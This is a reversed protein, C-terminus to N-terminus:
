RIKPSIVSNETIETEAESNRGRFSPASVGSRRNGDRGFSRKARATIGTHAICGAGPARSVAKPPPPEATSSQRREQPEQQTAGPCSGGRQQPRRRGQAATACSGRHLVTARSLPRSAQAGPGTQLGRPAPTRQGPAEPNIRFSKLWWGRSAGSPQGLLTSPGAGVCVCSNGADACQSSWDASNLSSLPSPSCM